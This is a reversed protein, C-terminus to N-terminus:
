TNIKNEQIWCHNMVDTLSLRDCGNLKLLKSILDRVAYSLYEPFQFNLTAIKKLTDDQTNSEFPPKGVVFEYALIGLCWNDVTDDYPIRMAIEPSLYDLTGCLTKRKSHPSHVSWGFDALKINGDISLLLNEPKIDRHIVQQLHCYRLADAVQNIYKAALAENFRGDKAKKLHWYVEGQLAYELLLYIRQEDHFWTYFRLINPHNLHSQIEIERLVQREVESKILEVKRLTKLAFITKTQRERVIFVRGFVGHGLRAGIEFDNLSWKYSQNNFAEHNVIQKCVRFVNPKLADDISNLKELNEAGIKELDNQSM